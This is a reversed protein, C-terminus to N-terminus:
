TYDREDELLDVSVADDNSDFERVVFCTATTGPTQMIEFAKEAAERPTNGDLDITWEIRYMAM